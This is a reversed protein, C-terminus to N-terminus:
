LAGERLPLRLPLHLGDAEVTATRGDKRMQIHDAYAVRCIKVGWGLRTAGVVWVRKTRGDVDKERPRRIGKVRMRVEEAEVWGM